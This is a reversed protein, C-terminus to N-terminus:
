VDCPCLTWELLFNPAFNLPLQSKSAATLIGKLQKGPICMALILFAGAPSLWKEFVDAGPIEKESDQRIQEKGLSGARLLCTWTTLPKSPSTFVRWPACCCIHNRATEDRGLFCRWHGLIHVGALQAADWGKYFCNVFWCCAPLLQEGINETILILTWIDENFSYNACGAAPLPCLAVHWKLVGSFVLKEQISM